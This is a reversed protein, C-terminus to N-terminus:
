AYGVFSLAVLLLLLLAGAFCALAIVGFFVARVWLETRSLERNVPVIELEIPPLDNQEPHILIIREMQGHAAAAPVVREEAAKQRWPDFSM